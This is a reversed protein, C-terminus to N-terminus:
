WEDAIWIQRPPFGARAADLAGATRPTVRIRRGRLEQDLDRIGLLLGLLVNAQMSVTSAPRGGVTATLGDVRLRLGKVRRRRLVRVADALLARADVVGAMFVSNPPRAPAIAAELFPLAPSGEMEFAAFSIPRRRGLRRLVEEVLRPGVDTGDAEPRWVVERVATVGGDSSGLAYGVVEGRDEAVLAPGRSRRDRWRRRWYVDSREMLGASVRARAEYVKGVESRDKVRMARIRM